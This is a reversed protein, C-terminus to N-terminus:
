DRKKALERVRRYMFHSDGKKFAMECQECQERIYSRHARRTAKEVVRKLRKYMDRSERDLKNTHNRKEECLSIIEDTIWPKQDAKQVGLTSQAVDCIVQSSSKVLNDIDDKSLTLPSTSLLESIRESLTATYNQRTTQDKLLDVRFRPPKRSLKAAAKLRMKFSTMVLSHDSDFDGGALTVTNTISSKWRRSVLIYDILNQTRGDPSTWTTKRRARHKFFTNTIVLDSDRCFEMLREGRKNLQGHGFKGMVDENGSPDDGVIANFDGIVFVIDKKPVSDVLCQLQLYFNESEEDDRSSDPAYVQIITLNAPSGKLRIMILRESIPTAAILSRRAKSSLLFGVGQRHKGDTRGSLVLTAEDLKEEGTVPLHTESLGVVDWNYRNIERLLLEKKGQKALTRINLTGISLTSKPSIIAELSPTTLTSTNARNATTTDDAAGSATSRFAHGEDTEGSATASTRVNM